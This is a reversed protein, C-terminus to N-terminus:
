APQANMRQETSVDHHVPRMASSYESVERHAGVDLHAAQALAARVITETTCSPELTKCKHGLQILKKVANMTSRIQPDQNVQKIDPGIYLVEASRCVNNIARAQTSDTPCGVMILRSARSLRSNMTQSIIREHLRHTWEGPRSSEPMDWVLHGHDRTNSNLEGLIASQKDADTCVICTTPILIQPVNRILPSMLVETNRHNHLAKQRGFPITEFSCRSDIIVCNIYFLLNNGAFM